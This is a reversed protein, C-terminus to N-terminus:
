LLLNPTAIKHALQDMLERAKSRPSRPLLNRHLEDSPLRDILEDWHLHDSIAFLDELLERMDWATFPLESGFDSVLREVARVVSYQDILKRPRCRIPVSRCPIIDIHDGLRREYIMAYRGVNFLIRDLKTTQFTRLRRAKTPSIGLSLNFIMESAKTVSPKRNGNLFVRMGPVLELARLIAFHVPKIRRDRTAYAPWRRTKFAVLSRGKQHKAKARVISQQPHGKPLPKLLPRIPPLRATDRGLGEKAKSTWDRLGRFADALQDIQQPRM